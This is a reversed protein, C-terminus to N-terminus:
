SRGKLYRRRAFGGLGVLGTAMMTLTAPEPTTSSEQNMSVGDLLVFPPVGDPTGIALFSLVDSTNDATFTFSQFQWGTFGHSSNQLVQTFLNEGGLSVEFQETTAGDFGFQQAGGWWFSVNYFAGPTLGNITQTIAGVQFAGDAAIFNGGDPSSAPLGNPSGNNPGWLQLNGFQGTVGTTDASGAPFIFNYGNTTWGTADTNFGMQGGGSTTMEFSGNTVLNTAHASMALALLAMASLGIFRSKHLARM